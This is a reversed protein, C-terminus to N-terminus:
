GAGKKSLIEILDRVEQDVEDDSDVFQRVRRRLIAQFRRKVTVIMNSATVESSIAHEACLSALSPAGINDMIPAIVKAHFVRWHTSKDTEICEKELEALVEDLLATAWAHTFAEDPTAEFAPEPVRHGEDGELSIIGAAPHRKKATNARHVNTIYHDLATLVFTRFRGKAQEAKQVLERGLVIEHFFGQTLDKATENQHGKRRLYCYVPKWYRRLLENMVARRRGDDMTRARLIETWHTTEFADRGDGMETRDRRAM